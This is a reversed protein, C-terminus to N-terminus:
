GPTCLEDKPEAKSPNLIEFITKSGWPCPVPRFMSSMEILSLLSRGSLEETRASDLYRHYNWVQGTRHLLV